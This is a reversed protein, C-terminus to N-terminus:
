PASANLLVSPSRTQGGLTAAPVTLSARTVVDVKLGAGRMRDVVGGRAELVGRLVEPDGLALVQFPGVVRRGNILLTPGSSTITSQATIREGNIAVASAGGYWLMMNLFVLDGDQVLVVRPNEHARVVRDGDAIMVEVGSGEVPTLGGLVAFRSAALHARVAGVLGAGAAGWGVVALLVWLAVAGRAGRGRSRPAPQPPVAVDEAKVVLPEVSKAGLAGSNGGGNSAPWWSECLSADIPPDGPKLRGRM